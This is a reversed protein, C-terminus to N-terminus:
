VCGRAAHARQQAAGTPLVRVHEHALSHLEGELLEAAAAQSDFRPRKSGRRRSFSLSRGLAVM